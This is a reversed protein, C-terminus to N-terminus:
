EYLVSTVVCQNLAEEYNGDCIKQLVSAIHVKAKYSESFLTDIDAGFRALYGKWNEQFKSEKFINEAFIEAVDKKKAM